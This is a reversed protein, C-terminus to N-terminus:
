NIEEKTMKNYKENMKRNNLTPIVDDGLNIHNSKEMEEFFEVITKDVKEIGDMLVFVGIDDPPVHEYAVM